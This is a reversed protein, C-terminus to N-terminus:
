GALVRAGVGPHRAMGHNLAEFRALVPKVVVAGALEGLSRNQSRGVAMREVLGHWSGGARHRRVPLAVEVSASLALIAPAHERVDDYSWLDFHSLMSDRDRERFPPKVGVDYSIADDNAPMSM